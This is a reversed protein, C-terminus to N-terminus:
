ASAIRPGIVSLSPARESNMISSPLMFVIPAGVRADTVVCLRPIPNIGAGNTDGDDVVSTALPADVVYM